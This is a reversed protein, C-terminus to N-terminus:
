AAATARWRLGNRPAVSMASATPATIPFCLIRLYKSSVMVSALKLAHVGEEGANGLLVGRAPDVRWAGFRFPRQNGAAAM